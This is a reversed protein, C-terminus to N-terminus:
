RVSCAVAQREKLLEAAVRQNLANELLKSIQMEVYENRSEELLELAETDVIPQAEIGADIQFKVNETDCLVLRNHRLYEGIAVNLSDSFEDVAIDLPVFDPQNMRNINRVLVKQRNETFEIIRVLLESINDRVLGQLNM